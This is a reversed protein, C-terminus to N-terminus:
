SSLFFNVCVGATSEEDNQMGLFSLGPSYIQGLNRTPRAATDLVVDM